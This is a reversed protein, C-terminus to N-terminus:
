LEIKFFLFLTKNNNNSMNNVGLGGKSMLYIRKVNM